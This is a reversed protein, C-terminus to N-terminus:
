AMRGIVKMADVLIGFCSDGAISQYRGFGRDQDSWHLCIWEFRETSPVFEGNWDRYGVEIVLNDFSRSMNMLEQLKQIFALKDEM